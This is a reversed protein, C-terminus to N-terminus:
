LEEDRLERVLEAADVGICEREWRARIEERRRSIRDFLERRREAGANYIHDRYSFERPAVESGGPHTRYLVAEERIFWQGGIRRGDLKGERLYRRVQETSRELKQAAEQVTVYGAVEEPM